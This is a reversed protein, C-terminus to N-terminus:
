RTSRRLGAHMSHVQDVGGPVAHVVDGLTCLTSGTSEVVQHVRHVVDEVPTQQDGARGGVSIPFLSSEVKNTSWSPTGPWRATDNKVVHV